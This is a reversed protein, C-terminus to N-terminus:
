ATVVREHVKRLIDTMSVVDIPKEAANTIWVQHRHVEANAMRTVIDKLTDRAKATIPHLLRDGHQCKLFDTVPLLLKPFTARNLGKADATSLTTVLVGDDNVVPIAHLVENHMLLFGELASQRTSIGHLKRQPGQPNCLHLEEIRTTFVNGLAEMHQNLFRIVDTQTVLQYKLKGTQDSKRHVLVRHIGKAFYDIVTALTDAPELSWLSSNEVSTNVDLTFLDSIPVQDFRDLSFSAETYGSTGSPASQSPSPEGRIAKTVSIAIYSIIDYASVIGIYKKSGALFKYVPVARISKSSLLELVQPIPTSEEVSILKSAKPALEAAHHSNVFSRLSDSSIDAAGTEFTQGSM